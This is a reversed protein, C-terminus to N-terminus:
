INNKKIIFYRGITKEYISNVERIRLIKSFGFFIAFYVISPVGLKLLKTVLSSSVVLHESVFHKFIITAFVTMACALVIKGATKFINRFPVEPLKKRLHWFLFICNISATISSGLAIGGHALYSMLIISLEINIIVGVIMVYVPTRTDKLAYFCQTIGRNLGFFPLGVMYCIIALAVMPTSRVPDFNGREFLLRVIEYRMTIAVLGIPVLLTLLTRATYSVLLALEKRNDRAAHESLSPLVATSFAFGILGLPLYLLRNAYTLSSVSGGPLFSAIIVDALYYLENAAFALVSPIFLKGVEVLDHWRRRISWSFRWGLKIVWPLQWLFQLVSGLVVFGAVIQIRIINDKTIFIAIIIGALWGLNMLAPALSSVFFKRYVNLIAQCYSALGVFAIYSFIIRVLKVALNKRAPDKHWGIVIIDIIEPALLIGFLVIGIVIILVISLVASAMRFASQEGEKHKVETFKPLFAAAFAGEGVIFNMLNPFRFAVAFADASIGTGFVAAMAIERFLGFVRAIFTGM